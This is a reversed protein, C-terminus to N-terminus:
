SKRRRFKSKLSEISSALWRVDEEDNYVYFSARTSAAIGFRKHLPMTCHHGARVAVGYKDMLYAIDHAHIGALTFSFIGAKQEPGPGFVKLGEMGDLLRHAEQVLRREHAAINELGINQVYQLAAELGIAEIIPPTGAEFKAPLEAAQFGDNWVRSIMGGGGLFPPSSELLDLKGYLVGIGTPGLVKHGSFVLFDAGLAQVDVAQHPIAQAADVVVVAGARHAMETLREIPNITGLVNSVATVAFLKPKLELCQQFHEIDLLGEDTVRVLQTKAGVRKALQFWPVLNAHHEMETALILDGSKINAEGWTHAITNVAATCGATFIVSETQPANIFKAVTKRASEYRETSAESFSYIGRHVNAYYRQMCDVMADIVFKPKQTSSANDLFVLRGRDGSIQQASGAAVAGAAQSSSEQNLIPFDSKIRAVDLPHATM